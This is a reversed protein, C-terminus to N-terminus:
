PWNQQLLVAPNFESNCYMLCKMDYLCTIQAFYQKRASEIMIDQTAFTITQRRTCHRGAVLPFSRNCTTRQWVKHIAPSQCDTEAKHVVIPRVTLEIVM